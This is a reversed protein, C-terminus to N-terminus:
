QLTQGQVKEARYWDSGSEGETPDCIMDGEIMKAMRHPEKVWAPVDDPLVPEWDERGNASKWVVILAEPM